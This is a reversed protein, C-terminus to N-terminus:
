PAGFSRTQPDDVRVRAREDREEPAAVARVLTDAVVVRRQAVSAVDEQRGVEDDRLGGRPQPEVGPEVRRECEAAQELLGDAGSPQDDAV